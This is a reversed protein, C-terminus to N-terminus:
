TASAASLLDPPSISVVKLVGIPWRTRGSGVLRTRAFRVYEEEVQAFNFEERGAYHLHKAIVLVALAPQSLGKLKSNAIGWGANEVQEIISATLAPVSLYSQTGAIIQTLPLVQLTLELNAQKALEM